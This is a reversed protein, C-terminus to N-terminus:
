LYGSALWGGDVALDAGTIFHAAESALFLTPGVLDAPSGFRGLPTRGEIRPGDLAGRKLLEQVPRTAIFGPIVCNVRIGRPGWESALTRTLGLLGAKAAGYAARQPFGLFSTLSGVNVIASGSSMHAAAAQSCLFAGTLDTEVVRQWDALALSEAPAVLGVGANNVLVDLRGFLEAVTQMLRAVEEPKTVDGAIPHASPGLAQAAAALASRDRGTIAVSAGAQVFGEALALGIGRSAGTVIVARGTFDFLANTTPSM